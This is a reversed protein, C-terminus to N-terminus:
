GGVRSLFVDLSSSPGQLVDDAKILSQNGRDDVDIVDVAVVVVVFVGDVVVVLAIVVTLGIILSLVFFGLLM